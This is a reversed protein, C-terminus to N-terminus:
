RVGFLMEVIIHITALLAFSFSFPKHVVHWLHFVKKSRSLFLIRKSMSAQRRALSIVSEIERAHSQFMGGLTSFAGSWGLAKRRLKAVHLVRKVDLAILSVFVVPLFETEVKQKSPFHFLPALEQEAFLRQGALAQTLTEQEMRAEDLSLEAANLSRPIQSYFYRGVFGSLAVAVMIWFAM